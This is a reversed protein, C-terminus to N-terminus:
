RCDPMSAVLGHRGNSSRIAIRRMPRKSLSADRHVDLRVAARPSVRPLERAREAKGCDLDIAPKKLGKLGVGQIIFDAM